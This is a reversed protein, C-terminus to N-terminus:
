KLLPREGNDIETAEYIRVDIDGAAKIGETIKDALEKTYGYATVYPIIVTKKINPNTETSWIKCHTQQNLFLRRVNNRNKAKM